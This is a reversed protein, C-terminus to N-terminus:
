EGKESCATPAPAAAEALLAPAKGKCLNGAPLEEEEQGSEADEM